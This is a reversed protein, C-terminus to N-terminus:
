FFETHLSCSCFQWGRLQKRSNKFPAFLVWWVTAVHLSQRFCASAPLRRQLIPAISLPRLPSAVVWRPNDLWLEAKLLVSAFSGGTPPHQVQTTPSRRNSASIHTSYVRIKAKCAIGDSKGGLSILQLRTKKRIEFTVWLSSLSHLPLGM